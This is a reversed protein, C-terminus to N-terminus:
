LRRRLYDLIQTTLTARTIEGATRLDFRHTDWRDEPFHFTGLVWQNGQDDSQVPGIGIAWSANLRRAATETLQKMITDGAGTEPADATAGLLRAMASSDPAVFAGAMVAAANTASSLAAALSGGSGLEVLALKATRQRLKQIVVDELTLNDEAYIFEALHERISEALRRLRAWDEPAHGPLSFTFDVRSGEFLSTITVDPAVAVHDKITQDILSQGAGVFRLTLSSGFERIGYRQRLLPLLENRVMPQLERPPGPLAVILAGEAEFVLGAATGNSNKLFGGRVPIKSQRRVNPRLQDRPQKMRKELAALVEDNEQLPIQTFDSLTQRTIDNPTPGLGGTVIVVPAKNTAFRLANQIDDRNDDVIISGACQCGLPRLARTLFPTHADPYVGELLEGGTVVIFYRLPESFATAGAAATPFPSSFWGLLVLGLYLRGTM